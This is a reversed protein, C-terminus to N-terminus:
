APYEDLFDAATLGNADMLRRLERVARQRRKQAAWVGIGLYSALDADSDGNFFYREVIERDGASLGECLEAVAVVNPTSVAVAALNAEDSAKPWDAKARRQKRATERAINRAVGRLFNRAVDWNPFLREGWLDLARHFTMQALDGETVSFVGRARCAFGVSKEFEFLDTAQLDRLIKSLTKTGTTAESEM